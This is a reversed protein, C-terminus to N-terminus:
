PTDPRELDTVRIALNDGVVVVEGHGYLTGNVLIEMPMGSLKETEFITGTEANLVESLPVRSRGLEVVVEMSAGRLRDVRTAMDRPWIGEADTKAKDAM